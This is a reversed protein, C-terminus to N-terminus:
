NELINNNRNVLTLEAKLNANEIQINNLKELILEQEQPNILPIKQYDSYLNKRYNLM